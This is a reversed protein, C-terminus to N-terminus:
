FRLRRDRSRACNASKLNRSMNRELMQRRRETTDLDTSVPRPGAPKTVDGIAQTLVPLLTVSLLDVLDCFNIMAQSGLLDEEVASQTSKWECSDKM